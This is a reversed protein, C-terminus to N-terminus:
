RERLRTNSELRMVRETLNRVKRSLHIVFESLVALLMVLVVASFIM